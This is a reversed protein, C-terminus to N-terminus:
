NNLPSAPKPYQGAYPISKLKEDTTKMEEYCNRRRERGKADTITESFFCPRHFNVYPNLHNSCFDNVLGAGHLSNPCLGSTQACSRREQVGGLPLTPIRPPAASAFPSALQGCTKTPGEASMKASRKLRAESLVFYVRDM